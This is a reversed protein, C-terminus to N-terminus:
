LGDRLHETIYSFLSILLPIKWFVTTDAPKEAMLDQLAREM